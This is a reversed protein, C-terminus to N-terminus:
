RSRAVGAGRSALSRTQVNQLVDGGDCREKETWAFDFEETAGSRALIRETLRANKGKNGDTNRRLRVTSGSDQDDGCCDSLELLKTTDDDDDGRCSGSCPAGRADDEDGSAV